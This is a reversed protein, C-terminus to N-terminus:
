RSISGLKIGLRFAADLWRDPVFRGFLGIRALAGVPYRPAPDTCSAAHVISRAVDESEIALPGEGILLTADEFASYLRDYAATRDSEDTAEEDAREYFSSAVSGPEVLVVDVGFAGAEVRLADSMAELAAKSGCYVGGMPHTFRGAVSSVNVITGDERDRMHPLVARTLRHPGYVNVDFQRHVEETSADEVPGYRAYGANNVLADIRGTEEIMRDVVAAIEEEDTVDLAATECGAEALDELDDPDRATAYVTWGEELFARATAAGIGSSCGTILVTEM